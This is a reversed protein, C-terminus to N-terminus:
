SRFWFLDNKPFDKLALNFFMKMNNILQIDPNKSEKLLPHVLHNACHIIFDFNNKKLYKHVEKTDLLNLDASSPASIQFKKSLSNAISSGIFASGGTVLVKM